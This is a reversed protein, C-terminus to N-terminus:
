RILSTSDSYSFYGESTVIVHDLFSIDMTQCAEKTKRTIQDDAGSPRTNGSPHNHVLVLGEAKAFLATRIIKKIDFISATSSGTTIRYRGIVKNMRNLLIVWIEEHPLNGIDYRVLDYIDKSMKIQTLDKHTEKNYRRVIEMVAEIQLAKADGIGDILKLQERPARELNRILNSHSKMLDSCLTTIPLGVTGVRLIIAFLEANSLTHIGYALAKERPQSDADMDKVTLTKSKVEYTEPESLDAINRFTDPIM